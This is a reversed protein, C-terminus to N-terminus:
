PIETEFFYVSTANQLLKRHLLPIVVFVFVWRKGGSKKIFNVSGDVVPLFFGRSLRLEVSFYRRHLFMNFGSSKFVLFHRIEPSSAHYLFPHFLFDALLGVYISFLFAVPFRRVIEVM